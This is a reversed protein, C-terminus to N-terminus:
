LTALAPEIGAGAEMKMARSLTLCLVGDALVRAPDRLPPATGGACGCSLHRRLTSPCAAHRFHCESARYTWCSVLLRTPTPKSARARAPALPLHPRLGFRPEFGLASLLWWLLNRTRGGDDEILSYSLPRTGRDKVGPVDTRIRSAKGNRTPSYRLPLARTKPVRPRPNSGRRELWCLGIIEVIQKATAATATNTAASSIGNM